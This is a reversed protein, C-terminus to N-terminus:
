GPYGAAMTHRDHTETSRIHTTGYSGTPCMSNVPTACVDSFHGTWPSNWGGLAHGLEHTAVSWVDLHSQLPATDYPWWTESSDLVIQANTIERTSANICVYTTGFTGNQGDLNYYHLGNAGTTYSCPTNPPWNLTSNDFYVLPRSGGGDYPWSDRANVFRDRFPYPSNQPFSATYGFRISTARWYGTIFTTATHGSAPAVTAAAIAACLLAAAVIPRLLTRRNM